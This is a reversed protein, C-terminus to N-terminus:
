RRAARGYVQATHRAVAAWAYDRRLVSGAARARRAAGQPDRLVSAVAVTLAGADGPAFSAAAVGGTVLDHLGGTDAVVVPARAAAAELAVLGFPEYLSPVVVVDAAGLLGALEADPVFGTWDVARAIRLRRARARLQAEYPGTGAIAVRLRGWEARLPRVADLLTQVGKEHVLRGAFVVLPDAGARQRAAAREAASVRWRAVDIGNPIVSVRAPPADFLTVVEDRMAASCIIVAQSGTVLWREVSHIALNLPRPLWGMGRGTETAHITTVLAAGTHRALTIASQAVLWDHAHIVDPHWRRLLPLAARLLAHEAAQSWALLSETTFDLALPDRAARRVRVGDVTEDTAAPAEGRTVVRVDHGAAALERALAQVHRGLGGVVLPPYEWSLLLVRVARWVLGRRRYGSRPRTRCSARTRCCSGRHARGPVRWGREGGPGDHRGDERLGDQQGGEALAVAVVAVLQVEPHQRQAPAVEVLRRQGRQQRM